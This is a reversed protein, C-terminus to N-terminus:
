VTDGKVIREAYERVARAPIVRREGVMASPLEGAECPELVLYPKAGLLRAAEAVTVLYPPPSINGIPDSRTSNRM